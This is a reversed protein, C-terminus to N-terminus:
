RRRADAGERLSLVELSASDLARFVLSTSIIDKRSFKDTFSEESFSANKLLSGAAIGDTGTGTAWRFSSGISAPLVKQGDLKGDKGIYLPMGLSSM